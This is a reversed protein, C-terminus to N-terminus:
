KLKPKKIIRSILYITGFILGVPVIIIVAWGLPTLSRSVDYVGFSVKEDALLMLFLGFIKTELANVLFTM